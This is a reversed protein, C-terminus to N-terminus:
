ITAPAYATSDTSSIVWASPIIRLQYGSESEADPLVWVYVSGFVFYEIALARIFEYETQDPNPRWLTRAAPSTRDRQRDNEGNRTYVNLPLQAISNSLYDVVARLNDQTQYLRRATYNLVNTSADGATAIYYVNPRFFTKWRELISPM